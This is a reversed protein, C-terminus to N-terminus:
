VFSGSARKARRYRRVRLPEEGYDVGELFRLARNVNRFDFNDDEVDQEALLGRLQNPHISYSM